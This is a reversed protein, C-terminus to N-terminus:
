EEKVKKEAEPWMEKQREYGAKGNQGESVGLKGLGKGRVNVLLECRPLQRRLLLSCGGGKTTAIPRQSNCNNKTVNNQYASALACTRAASAATQLCSPALRAHREQHTPAHQQARQPMSAAARADHAGTKHERWEKWWCDMLLVVQVGGANQLLVLFSLSSCLAPKHLGDRRGLHAFCHM